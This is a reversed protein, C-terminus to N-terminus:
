AQFDDTSGNKGPSRLADVLFGADVKILLSSARVLEGLRHVENWEQRGMAAVLSGVLGRQRVLIEEYSSLRERLSNDKTDISAISAKARQIAVSLQDVTDTLHKVLETSM